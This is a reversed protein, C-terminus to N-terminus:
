EEVTSSPWTTGYKERLPHGEQRKVLLTLVSITILFYISTSQTLLVSHL